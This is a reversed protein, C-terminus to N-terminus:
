RHIQARGDGCPGAGNGMHAQIGWFVGKEELCEGLGGGSPARWGATIGLIPRPPPSIDGGYLSSM